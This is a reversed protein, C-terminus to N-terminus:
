CKATNQCEPKQINEQPSWQGVGQERKDMNVLLFHQFPLM